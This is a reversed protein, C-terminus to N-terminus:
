AMNEKRMQGRGSVAQERGEHQELHCMPHYVVTTRGVREAHLRLALQQAMTGTPMFIAAPKGLLEGVERELETVVGGDGYRDVVTDAPISALVDNVNVPGHGGLFRAGDLPDSGHGASLSRGLSTLPPTM